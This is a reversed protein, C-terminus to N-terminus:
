FVFPLYVVLDQWMAKTSIRVSISRVPGKKRSCCTTHSIMRQVVVIEIELLQMAIHIAKQHPNNSKLPKIRKSWELVVLWMYM